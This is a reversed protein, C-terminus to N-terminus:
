DSTALVHGVGDWGCFADLYRVDQGHVQNSIRASRQFDLVAPDLFQLLNHPVRVGVSASSVLITDQVVWGTVPDRLKRVIQEPSHGKRGM